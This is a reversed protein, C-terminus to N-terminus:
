WLPYKFMSVVLLVMTLGFVFYYTGQSPETNQNDEDMDRVNGELLSEWKLM